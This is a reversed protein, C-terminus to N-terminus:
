IKRQAIEIWRMKGKMNTTNKYEGTVQAASAM